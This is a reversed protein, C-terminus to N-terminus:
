DNSYRVAVSDQNAYKSLEVTVNESKAGAGNSTKVYIAFDEKTMISKYGFTRRFDEAIKQTRRACRVPVSDYLYISDKTIQKQRDKPDLGMTEGKSKSKVGEKTKTDMRQQIMIDADKRSQSPNKARNLRLQAADHEQRCHQNSQQVSDANYIAVVDSKSGESYAAFCLSAVFVIPIILKM